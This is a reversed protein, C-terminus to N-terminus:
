CRRLLERVVLSVFHHLVEDATVFSNGVATTVVTRQHNGGRICTLKPGTQRTETQLYRPLSQETRKSHARTRGRHIRRRVKQCLARQRPHPGTGKGTPDNRTADTRRKQSGSPNSGTRSARPCQHTKAGRGNRRPDNDREFPSWGSDDTDSEHSRWTKLEKS